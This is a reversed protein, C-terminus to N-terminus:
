KGCNKIADKIGGVQTIVGERVAQEGVLITGLDKTLQGTNLMMEELREKKAYCHSEIIWHDSGADASIIMPRPLM